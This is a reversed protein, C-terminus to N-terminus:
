ARGEGAERIFDLVPNRHWHHVLHCGRHLLGFRQNDQTSALGGGACEATGFGFQGDPKGLRQRAPDFM